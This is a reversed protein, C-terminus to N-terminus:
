KTHHTTPPIQLHQMNHLVPVTFTHDVKKERGRGGEGERERGREVEEEREGRRRWFHQIDGTALSGHILHGECSPLLHSTEPGRQLEPQGYEM